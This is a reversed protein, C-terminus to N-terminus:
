RSGSEAQTVWCARFTAIPSRIRSIRGTTRSRSALNDSGKSSTIRVPSTRIMLVGIRAGFALVKPSHHPSLPAAPLAQVVEEDEASAM